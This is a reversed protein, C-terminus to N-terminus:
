SNRWNSAKESCRLLTGRGDKVETVVDLEIIEWSRGRNTVFFYRRCLREQWYEHRILTKWTTDWNKREDCFQMKQGRCNWRTGRPSLRLTDNPFMYLEVRQSVYLHYCQGTGWRVIPVIPVIDSTRLSIRVEAHQPHPYGIQDYPSGEEEKGERKAIQTRAQCSWGIGMDHSAIKLYRDASLLYWKGM